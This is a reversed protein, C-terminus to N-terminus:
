PAEERDWDDPVSHGRAKRDAYWERRSRILRNAHFHWWMLSAGCFWGFGFVALDNM